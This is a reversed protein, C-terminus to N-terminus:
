HESSLHDHITGKDRASPLWAFFIPRLPESFHLSPSSFLITGKLVDYFLLTQSGCDLFVGLQHVPMKVQQVSFPFCILVHSANAEQSCSLLFIDQPSYHSNNRRNLSQKCVGVAWESQGQVKVEWYCRGARFAQVAMVANFSFREASNPLRWLIGGNTVSKRDNSIVLYPNATEADLTIDVQFKHLIERMGTMSCQRLQPIVGVPEPRHLLLSVSRSLIDKVDQKLEADPKQCTEKPETIVAKLRESQEAMQIMAKRVNQYSQIKDKELEELHGQEEEQLYRHMRKYEFRIMEEWDSIHRRCAKETEELGSSSRTRQEETESGMESISLPIQEEKCVLNKSEQNGECNDQKEPNQLHCHRFEKALKSLHANVPFDRNQSVQQCVPCSFPTSAEKWHSLLCHQCFCHSCDITIPDKFYDKCIPCLLEKQIKTFIEKAEM